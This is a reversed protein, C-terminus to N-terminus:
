SFIDIIKGNISKFLARTKYLEKGMAEGVCIPCEHLFDFYHLNHIKCYKRNGKNNINYVKKREM